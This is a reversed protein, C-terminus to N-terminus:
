DAITPAREEAYLREVLATSRPFQERWRAADDAMPKPLRDRIPLVTAARGCGYNDPWIWVGSLAAFTLDVFNPDPGTLLHERGDALMVEIDDLLAEIRRASRERTDPDIRFVRVMFFALVPYFVRVALREWWPVEPDRVGWALLAVQRHQLLHAYLWQQLDVGYRDLRRELTLADVSPRLFLAREGFHVGYRGWLYRLIEASNGISSVVLGTRFRLRPVTRGTLLVGLVGASKREVYAVGLRDLSWRVKEVFHSATISDLVLEPQRRRRFFPAMHHLWRWILAAVVLLAAVAVGLELAAVIVPLGVVV